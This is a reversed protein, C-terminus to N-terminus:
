VIGHRTGEQDTIHGSELRALGGLGDVIDIVKERAKKPSTATVSFTLLPVGGTVVLNVRYSQM